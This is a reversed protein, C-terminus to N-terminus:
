HEEESDWFYDDGEEESNQDTNDIAPALGGVESVSKWSRPAIAPPRPALLGDGCTAIWRSRKIYGDLQDRNVKTLLGPTDAAPSALLSSLPTPPAEDLPANWPKLPIRGPAVHRLPTSDFMDDTHEQGVRLLSIPM